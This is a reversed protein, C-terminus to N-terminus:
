TPLSEAEAMCREYVRPAYSASMDAVLSNCATVAQARNPHLPAPTSTSCGALLVACGVALGTLPKKM